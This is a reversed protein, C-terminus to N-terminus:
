CSAAMICKGRELIEVWKALLALNKVKLNGLGLGGDNQSRTVFEWKVLHNLKGGKNGEWFFTRMIRELKAIVKEPMLFVFM